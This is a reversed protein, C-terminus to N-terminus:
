LQENYKQLYLEKSQEVWKDRGIRGSYHIVQNEICEIGASSLEAIQRYSNIGAANLKAEIAPGVGEIQKLDDAMDSPTFGVNNKVQGSGILDQVSKNLEEIRLAIDKFDSSTPVGLRNLVRSVRDEFIKELNELTDTAMTKVEEVKDKMEDVAEEALKQTQTRVKESEKTLSKILKDSEKQAKEVAEQAKEVAAKGASLVQEATSKNAKKAM